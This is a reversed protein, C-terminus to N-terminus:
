GDLDRLRSLTNKKFEKDRIRANETPKDIIPEIRPKSKIADIKKQEKIILAEVFNPRVSFVGKNAKLMNIVAREDYTKLLKYVCRLQSKFYSAWEKLHWFQIPLDKKERRAKSECILEIIYQPGTVWGGPSYPSPYSSKETREEAM